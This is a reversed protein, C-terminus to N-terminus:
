EYPVTETKGTLASKEAAEIIAVVRRAEEPKVDLEAGQLLHAAINRYYAPWDSQQYKVELRAEYGQLGTFVHFKGGGEDVLAGEAGLIRWRPKGARAISSIQVDVVAGSDFRLTAEVQDENTVDKWVCKHFYGNVGLVRGPILNLVWDLLHAGWDYFAGGSVKKDSRWWYGPHAYGGLFAEVHFVDGILGKQLVDRIALFDGDHRRQHFVTLTVGAKRAADIMQTAEEATLCMPKEVIVHKKAELCQLALPAHTNHPTVVTVLDVKGRLMKGLDTFTKAEPFDRKAAEVRKPDADCIATLELGETSKIFDCHAKGWNLAPGYGLVACRIRGEVMAYFVLGVALREM